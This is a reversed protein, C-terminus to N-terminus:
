GMWSTMVQASDMLWNLIGTRLFQLPQDLVGTFLLLMLVLMGYREYRMIGFYIRDPLLAGFIKAGDLPPIPFFNFVGLGVNIMACIWLFDLFSENATGKTAYFVGNLIVVCLFALIFNSIPGAAATLAMDRKPNKFLRNDVPVPKAWGFGVVVLMLLGFPDIHRLPNFSIRGRDYATTDGLWYAALAHCSEHTMIALLAAPIYLLSTWDFNVIWDRITDIGSM